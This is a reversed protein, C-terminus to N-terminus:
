CLNRRKCHLSCNAKWLCLTSLKQRLWTKTTHFFHSRFSLHETIPFVYYNNSVIDSRVGWVSCNYNHEAAWIFKEFRTLADAACWITLVYLIAHDIHLCHNYRLYRMRMLLVVVPQVFLIWMERQLHSPFFIPIMVVLPIYPSLSSGKQNALMEEHFVIEGTNCSDLLQLQIPNLPCALNWLIM